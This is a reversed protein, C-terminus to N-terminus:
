MTSALAFQEWLMRVEVMAGNADTYFFGPDTRSDKFREWKDPDHQRERGGIYLNIPTPCKNYVTYRRTNEAALPTALIIMSAFAIPFLALIMVNPESFSDFLHIWCVVDVGRKHPDPYFFIHM